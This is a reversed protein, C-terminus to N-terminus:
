LVKVCMQLSVNRSCCLLCLHRYYENARTLSNKYANTLAETHPVLNDMIIMLCHHCPCALADTVGTSLRPLQFPCTVVIKQPFTLIYIGLLCEVIYLSHLLARGRTCEVFRSPLWHLAFWFPSAGFFVWLGPWNFSHAGEALM